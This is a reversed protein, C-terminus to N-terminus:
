RKRLMFRLVAGYVQGELDRLDHEIDEMEGLKSSWRGSPLQRAAHTPVGIVNAFLAIKEIDPELDGNECVVFGLTAFALEFSTISEVRVSGSPWYGRDLPLPWWWNKDDGAAWAVCNYRKSAPSTIHFRDLNLGPFANDWPTVM